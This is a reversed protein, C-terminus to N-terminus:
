EFRKDKVEDRASPTRKKTYDSGLLPSFLIDIDLDGAGRDPSFSERKM